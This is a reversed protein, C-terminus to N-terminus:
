AEPQTLRVSNRQQGAEKTSFEGEIRCM